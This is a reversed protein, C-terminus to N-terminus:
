YQVARRLRVQPSASLTWSYTHRAEGKSEPVMLHRHGHISHPGDRELESMGRGEGHELILSSATGRGTPPGHHSPLLWAAPELGTWLSAAARPTWGICPQVAPLTRFPKWEPGVNKCHLRLELHRPSFTLSSEKRGEGAGRAALVVTCAVYNQM